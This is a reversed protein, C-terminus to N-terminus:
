VADLNWWRDRSLRSYRLPGPGKAFVGLDWTIQPPLQLPKREPTDLWGRLGRERKRLGGKPTARVLVRRKPRRLCVSVCVCLCVVVVVRAVVSAALVVVAVVLLVM